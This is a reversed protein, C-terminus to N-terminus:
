EVDLQEINRVVQKGPFRDIYIIDLATDKLRANSFWDLVQLIQLQDLFDHEFWIIVKDYDSSTKLQQDRLCFTEKQAQQM